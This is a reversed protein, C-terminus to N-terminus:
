EKGVRRMRGPGALLDALYITPVQEKAAEVITKGSM